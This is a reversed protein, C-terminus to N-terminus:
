VKFIKAVDKNEPHVCLLNFKYITKRIWCRNGDGSGAGNGPFLFFLILGKGCILLDFPSM